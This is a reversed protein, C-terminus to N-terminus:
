GRLLAVIAEILTSGGLPAVLLLLLNLGIIWGIIRGQRKTLGGRAPEPEWPGPPHWDDHFDVFM